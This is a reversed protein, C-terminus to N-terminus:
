PLFPTVIIRRRRKQHADHARTPKTPIVFPEVIREANAPIIIMKPIIAPLHFARFFIKRNFALDVRKRFTKIPLKFVFRNGILPFDIAFLSFDFHNHRHLWNSPLPALRGKLISDITIHSIWYHRSLFTRMLMLLLARRLPRIIRRMFSPKEKLSVHKIPLIIACPFDSRSIFLRTGDKFNRSEPQSHQAGSSIILFVFKLPNNNQATHEHTYYDITAFCKM